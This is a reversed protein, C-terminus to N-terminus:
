GKRIKIVSGDLPNKTVEFGTPIVELAEVHSIIGIKKGAGCSKLIQLLQGLASDDLTGFGEDIFLSNVEIGGTRSQVTEAIALGLIVSMVFKEGGSLMCVSYDAGAADISYNIVNIDLGSKTNKATEMQKYLRYNSDLVSELMINARALVNDLMVGLVYRQFSMEKGGAMKDTFEKREEVLKLEETYDAEAKKYEESNKRLGIIKEEARIYKDKAASLQESLGDKEAKLKETDPRERGELEASIEAVQEAANKLDHDFDICQKKLEEVAEIGKEDPSYEEAKASIGNERLKKDLAEYALVHKEEASSLEKETIKLQAEASVSKNEAESFTKELAKMGNDYEEFLRRCREIEKNLSDTDGIGEIRSSKLTSLKTEAAARGARKDSLEREASSKEDLAANFETQTKRINEELRSLEKYREELATIEASVETLREPTYGYEKLKGVKKKGDEELASLKEELVGCRQKIDSLAKESSDLEAKINKLQEASVTATNLTHFPEPHHVSGCVPCKEGETLGESLEAALGNLHNEFASDYAKKLEGCSKEANDREACSRNHAAKYKKYENRIDNIEESLEKGNELRIKEVNLATLRDSINESRLKEAQKGFRDLSKKKVDATEAAKGAKEASSKEESLAAAYEKEATSIEDYLGSLEKLKDYQKRAAEAKESGSKLEELANRADALEKAASSRLSQAELRNKQRFLLEEKASRYAKYEPLSNKQAEIIKIASKRRSFEEERAKLGSHRRIQKDLEDFRAALGVQLEYRETITKLATEQEALRLKDESHEKELIDLSERLAEISDFDPRFYQELGKRKDEASRMAENSRERLINVIEEIHKTGFLESFLEEKERSGGTLLKEIKGQPLVVIQCFQECTMHLINEALRNVETYTNKSNIQKEEGDTIDYVCAKTQLTGTDENINESKKRPKTYWEERRFKYMHGAAEFTFEVTMERSTGHLCKSMLSFREGTSEGYLAYTLADLILSKGAGTYGDILFISDVSDFDIVTEKLYSGFGKMMLKHPIM